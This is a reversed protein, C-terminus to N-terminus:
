VRLRQSDDFDNMRLKPYNPLISKIKDIWDFWQMNNKNTYLHPTFAYGILIVWVSNLRFRM